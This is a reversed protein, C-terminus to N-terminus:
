SASSEVPFSVRNMGVHMPFEYVPPRGGPPPPPEDGRAHPVGGKKSSAKKGRRNMGVHM